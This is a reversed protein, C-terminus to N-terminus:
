IEEKMLRELAYSRSGKVLIMNESQVVKNFLEHLAKIDSVNTFKSLDLSTSQSAKLFEDGITYVHDLELREIENLIAIHEQQSIDGLEVMDSLFAVKPVDLPYTVLIDLAYTLSSKNSKYADLLITAKDKKVIETRLSTLAVNALGEKILQPDINIDEVLAIIGACNSAQHKGLLNCFYEKNDIKFTVGQDNTKVDSVVINNDSNFGFSVQNSALKRYSEFDGQYYCKTQDKVYDFIKFKEQAIAFENEFNAMHAPALSTILAADPKLFEAISVVDGPADLGVEFVGYETSEDMRFINLVTGIVTNQNMHTAISNPLISHLIDKTSTKGNSGTIGIIFADLSDRYSEGAMVLAKYTDKVLIQAVDIDLMHDVLLCVAGQNVAELAFTHGDVRDGRLCVFLDGKTILRQDVKLGSVEVDQNLSGDVWENIKSALLKM